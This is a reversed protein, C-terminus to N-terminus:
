FSRPILVNIHQKILSGQYNLMTYIYKNTYIIKSKTSPNASVLLIGKKNYSDDYQNTIKNKSEINKCLAILEMAEQEFNM